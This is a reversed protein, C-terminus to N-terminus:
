SFVKNFAQTLEKHAGTKVFTGHASLLQDFDWELLRAFESEIGQQDTVMIKLWMPGIITDNTFGVLPLLLKVLWSTYPKHPPTSYSQVSDVTLLVGSGRELLIAGETNKLHDFIFLKACPFPLEGDASLPHTIAPEPYTEGDTFSWFTANYRDVYFADDMGHFPGLRLVHKIEGLAELAKLGAEDMRVTNILTLEGAHRVVAMNRNIRVIPKLLVSGCVVFLDDAIETPPDHPESNQYTM